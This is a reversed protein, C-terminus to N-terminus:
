KVRCKQTGLTCVLHESQKFMLMCNLCLRKGETDDCETDMDDDWLPVDDIPIEDATEAQTRDTISWFAIGASKKLLKVHKDRPRIHAFLSHLNYMKEIRPSTFIDFLAQSDTLANHAGVLPKGCFTAFCHGLAFSTKSTAQNQPKESLPKDKFWMKLVQLTDMFGGVKIDVLFQDYDLRHQKFNCFLMVDDFNFSNHGCVILKSNPFKTLHSLIWKKFKEVVEPFFAASALDSQHIHHVEEAVPNILKRTQVFEHFTHPRVFKDEVECIVAGLSIIDSETPIKDSSEVDWFMFFHKFAFCETSTDSENKAQKSVTEHNDEERGRKMNSFHRSIKLCRTVHKEIQTSEPNWTKIKENKMLVM